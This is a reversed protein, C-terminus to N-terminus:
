ASQEKGLQSGNIVEGTLTRIYIRDPLRLDITKIARDLIHKDKNLEALKKWADDTDTEPLMVEIGNSFVINWRRNGMRVAAQVQDFMEKETELMAFLDRVKSNAGEGVVMPLTLVDPSDVTTLQKGEEDIVYYKKEFEWIALPKRETISIKVESPLIRKITADKVWNDQMVETRLKDLDLALIPTDYLLGLKEVLNEQGIFKEGEFSVKELKFGMGGAANQSNRAFFNVFKNSGDDNGAWISILIVFAFFGPVAVKYARRMRNRNRRKAAVKEYNEIYSRSRKGAM